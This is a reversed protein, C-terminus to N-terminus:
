LVNHEYMVYETIQLTYLVFTISTCLTFTVTGYINATWANYAIPIFVYLMKMSWLVPTYSRSMSGGIIIGFINFIIDKKDAYWYRRNAVMVCSCEEIIEWLVGVFFLLFFHLEFLCRLEAFQLTHIVNWASFLGIYQKDLVDKFGSTLLKKRHFDYLGILSCNLLLTLLFNMM